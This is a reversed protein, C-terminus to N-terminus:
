WVSCRVVLRADLLNMLGVSSLELQWLLSRMVLYTCLYSLQEERPSHELCCSFALVDVIDLVFEIITDQATDREITAVVEIGFGQSACSLKRVHHAPRFGTLTIDATEATRGVGQAGEALSLLIGIGDLAIRQTHIEVSLIHQLRLVPINLLGGVIRIVSLHTQRHVLRFTAGGDEKM